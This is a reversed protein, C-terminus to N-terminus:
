GNEKRKFSDRYSNGSSFLSFFLKEKKLGYLNPKILLTFNCKNGRFEKLFSGLPSCTSRLFDETM